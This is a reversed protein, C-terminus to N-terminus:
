LTRAKYRKEVLLNQPQFLARGGDIEVWVGVLSGTELRGKERLTFEGLADEFTKDGMRKTPPNPCDESRWAIAPYSWAEM